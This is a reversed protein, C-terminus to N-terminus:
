GQHEAKNVSNRKLRHIEQSGREMSWTYKEGKWTSTELIDLVPFLYFVDRTELTSRLWYIKMLINIERM